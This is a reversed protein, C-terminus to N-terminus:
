IHILSLYILKNSNFKNGQKYVQLAFDVMGEREYGDALGQIQQHTSQHNIKKLAQTYYGEAKEKKNYREYIKGLDILNQKSLEVIASSADLPHNVVVIIEIACNEPIDCACLSKVSEILEPENFSPIVVIVKVLADPPTLIHSKSSQFRHFYTEGISIFPKEGM